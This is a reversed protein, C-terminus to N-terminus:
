EDNIMLREELVQLYEIDVDHTGIVTCGIDLANYIYELAAATIEEGPALIPIGPPYCM